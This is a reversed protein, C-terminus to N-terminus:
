LMDMGSLLMITNILQKFDGLTVLTKAGIGGDQIKASFGISYNEDIGSLIGTFMQLGAAANPDAKSILAIISNAMTIPSFGYLVNNDAGLKEILVQFSIDEAISEGIKAKSDLADQIQQPGGLGFYMLGDSFAYSWQWEQPLLMAANPDVDIFADGFNPFIITKIEAENHVIANGYHVGDFMSLQPVDEVNKQLLDALKKVQTLFSENMYTKLKEENNLAIIYLYDPILSENYNASFSMEDSFTDKFESFDQVITEIHDIIESINESDDDVGSISIAKLLHKNMEFLLDFDINFGGCAFAENPLDNILTLEDPELNILAQEIKGDKKFHLNKSLMVDTEEIQLSVSVSNLEALFELIWESMGEIFPVVAAADPDSQMSDIADQFEERFGEIVPEIVSQLNFFAAVQETGQEITSFFSTYNMNQIIPMLDGNNIDIVNECIEPYQAYVLVNDLIIYSGEDSDWYTVGSYEIPESQDAESEIVSKITDPDKIHVIAALSPPEVSTLFVAFDQNLDLGIDELEEISEFGADFTSALFQALLEPAPGAQPVLESAVNNIRDNLELLSPCYIVGMASDPILHLVSGEAIEVESKEETESETESSVAEIQSEAEPSPALREIKEAEPSQLKDKIQTEPSKRPNDKLEAEPSKRPKDRLEAEPSKRPKDRLEAEPSKRPNDRLEAEPSKRPKDRLEAEPSKRPKDILEGEFSQPVDNESSLEGEVNEVTPQLNPKEKAVCGVFLLLTTLM